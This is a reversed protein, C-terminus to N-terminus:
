PKRRTKFFTIFIAEYERFMCTLRPM